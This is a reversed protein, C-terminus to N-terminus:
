FVLGRTVLLPYRHDVALGQICYPCARGDATDLVCEISGTPSQSTKIKKKGRAGSWSRSADTMPELTDRRGRPSEDLADALKERRRRRRRRRTEGPEAQCARTARRSRFELAGSCYLCKPACLVGGARDAQFVSVQTREAEVGTGGKKSCRLIQVSKRLAETRNPSPLTSSETHSSALHGNSVRESRRCEAPYWPLPPRVVRLGHGTPQM